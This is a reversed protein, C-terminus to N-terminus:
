VVLNSEKKMLLLKTEMTESIKRIKKIINEDRDIVLVDKGAKLLTEALAYGFRGLGIIGFEITSKHNM